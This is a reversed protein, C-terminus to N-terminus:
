PSKSWAAAAFSALGAHVPLGFRRQGGALALQTATAQGPPGDHLVFAPREAPSLSELVVLLALGVLLGSEPM